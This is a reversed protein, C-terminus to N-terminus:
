TPQRRHPDTVAAQQLRTAAPAVARGRRAAVRGCLSMTTSSTAAPAPTARTSPCPTRCQFSLM